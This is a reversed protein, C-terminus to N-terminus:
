SCPVFFHMVYEILIFLIRVELLFQSALLGDLDAKLLEFLSGLVDFCSPVLLLTLLEFTFINLRVSEVSVIEIIQKIAACCIRVLLEEGAVQTVKGVKIHNCRKAPNVQRDLFTGLLRVLYLAIAFTTDVNGRFVLHSGDYELLFDFLACKLLVLIQEDNM